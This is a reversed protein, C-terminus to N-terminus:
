ANLVLQDIKRNVSEKEERVKEIMDNLKNMVSKIQSHTNELSSQSHNIKDRVMWDVILGDFFYDAFSLFGEVNVQVDAHITVDALESKFRRLRTQLTQVSQQAANLKNHKAVDAILGGGVLDWTSWGSASSLDNMAASAAFLASNGADIAEQLENEQRVFFTLQEELKCLEEAAPTNTMKIYEQKALWVKEYEEESVQIQELERQISAIEDDLTQLEACAEVYKLRAGIAEAREKELKEEKKGSIKYFFGSLSAGELKEVDKEETIKVSELQIVKRKLEIRQKDLDDLVHELHTKKAMQERLENLRTDFSTM